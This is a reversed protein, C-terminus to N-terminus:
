IALVEIATKSGDFFTADGFAPFNGGWSIIKPREATM